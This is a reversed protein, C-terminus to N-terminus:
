RKRKTKTNLEQAEKWCFELQYGPFSQLFIITLLSPNCLSSISRKESSLYVAVTERTVASVASKNCNIQLVYGERVQVEEPSSSQLWASWFQLPPPPVVGFACHIGIGIM